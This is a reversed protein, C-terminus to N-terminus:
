GHDRQFFFNRTRFAQQPTQFFILWIQSSAKRRKPVFVSPASM